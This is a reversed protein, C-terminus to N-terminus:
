MFTLPNPDVTIRVPTMAVFDGDAQVPMAAPGAIEVTRADLRRWHPDALIPCIMSLAFRAFDRRRATPM